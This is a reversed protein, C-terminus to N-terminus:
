SFKYHLPAIGTRMKHVQGEHVLFLKLLELESCEGNAFEVVSKSRSKICMNFPLYDNKSLSLDARTDRFGILSLQDDNDIAKAIITCLYQQKSIVCDKAPDTCVAINRVEENSNNGKEVVSLSTVGKTKDRAEKAERKKCQSIHHGKEKCYACSLTAKLGSSTSHCSSGKM